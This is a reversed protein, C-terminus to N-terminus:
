EEDEVVEFVPDTEVKIYEIKYSKGSELTITATKTQMKEGNIWIEYADDAVAQENLAYEGANKINLGTETGSWGYGGFVLMAIQFPKTYDYRTSWGEQVIAYGTKVTLKVYVVDLALIDAKTLGTVTLEQTYEADKYLKYEAKDADFYVHQLIQEYADEPSDTNYDYWVTNFYVGNACLQTKTEYYEEAPAGEQYIEDEDTPLTVTLADYKAQAFAYEITGTTAYVSGSEMTMTETGDTETMTMNMENVAEFGALKGDKASFVFSMGVEQTVAGDEDEETASVFLDMTLTYVGNAGTASIEVTMDPLFGINEAMIIPTATEIASRFETISDAMAVGDFVAFYDECFEDMDFSSFEEEASQHIKFYDEGSDPEQNSGEAPIFEGTEVGYLVGDQRFTKSFYTYVGDEDEDLSEMYIFKNVADYSMTESEREIEEVPDADGMKQTQTGEMAMTVTISGEYVRTAEYADVIYDFIEAETTPVYPTEGGGSSSSSSSSSSSTSNNYGGCATVSITMGLAM